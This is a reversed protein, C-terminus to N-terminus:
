FSFSPVLPTLPHCPGSYRKEIARERAEIKALDDNYQDIQEPTLEQFLKKRRELNQEEFQKNVKTRDEDKKAIADTLSRMAPPAVYIVAPYLGVRIRLADPPFDDLSKPLGGKVESPWGRKAQWNYSQLFDVLADAVDDSAFEAQWLDVGPPSVFPQIEVGDDIGDM